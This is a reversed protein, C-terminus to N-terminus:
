SISIKAKALESSLEDRFEPTNKLFKLMAKKGNWQKAKDTDKKYFQWSIKDDIVGAAICEKILELDNDAHYQIAYAESTKKPAAEVQEDKGVLIQIHEFLQEGKIDTFTQNVLYTVPDVSVPAQCIPTGTETWKISNDRENVTIIGDEVATLIVYKRQNAKNNVGEMFKVPNANAHKVLLEYRIEKPSQNINVGLVKAHNRVLDFDAKLCWETSEMSQSIKDIAAEANHESKFEFFVPPKTTDRFPNTENNPHLLLFQM